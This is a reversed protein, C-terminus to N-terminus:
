SQNRRRAILPRCPCTVWSGVGSAAAERCKRLTITSLLFRACAAMLVQASVAVSDRLTVM